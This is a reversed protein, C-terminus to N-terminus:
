PPTTHRQKIKGGTSYTLTRALGGRHQLRGGIGRRQGRGGASAAHDGDTEEGEAVAASMREGHQQAFTVAESSLDPGHAIQDRVKRGKQQAGAEIGGLEDVQALDLRPLGCQRPNAV